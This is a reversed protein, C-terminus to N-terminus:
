ARMVAAESEIIAWKEQSTQPTFNRVLIGSTDLLMRTSDQLEVEVFLIDSAFIGIFHRALRNKKVQLPFGPNTGLLTVTQGGERTTLTMPPVIKKMADEKTM